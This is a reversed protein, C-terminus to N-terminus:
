ASGAGARVSPPVLERLVRTLRELDVPKPELRDFGAQRALRHVEPRTHATLAIAPTGGARGAPLQRVQRILDYGDADPMAIDSVLVDPRFSEFKVIAAAVGNAAGVTAGLLELAESLFDRSDDDDEVVLIRIGDLRLPGTSPPVAREPSASVASTRGGVCPLEVRFAAGRGRGESEVAISGGHAHVIEKVIALGLGLGGHRRTSGGDAQRFAEFIHPVFELPIGEGADQVRLQLSGDSLTASVSVVGNPHSFKIANTLLNWIVQQIRQADGDIKDHVDIHVNLSVGKAAAAPRVTELADRIVSEVDVRGVSLKMQGRAIRSFDLVDEVIRAQALASREIVALARDLDPVVKARAMTAWGLISNLPTRLEHSVTALFEDKAISASEAARRAAREQELLEARAAQTAEIEQRALVERTVDVAFMLVQDVAGSGDRLPHATFNVYALRASAGGGVGPSVPHERLVVTAGTAIAREVASVVGTGLNGDALKAGNLEVAFLAKYASNAFAYEFEPARVIAILAPAVNLIEYLSTLELQRVVALTARDVAARFLRKEAESFSRRSTSGIQAVGLVDGGHLLPVGYLGAAPQDMPLREAAIKGAFGEGIRQRHGPTFEDGQGISAQVQLWEGDRLLIAALDAADAADAFARLLEDLLAHVDSYERTVNAIREFAVLRRIAEDRELTRAAVQKQHVSERQEYLDVFAKVRSRVVTPDFPKTIYDAAGSGYGKAVNMEDHYIATVFLIPMQRGRDTQRIRHALEFGDMEPMQVDILAAAFAEHQLHSLAAKPSLASVIRVGLPSLVAELALLNAPNDDVLLVAASRARAASPPAFM